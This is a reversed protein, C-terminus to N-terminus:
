DLRDTSDSEIPIWMTFTSGQSRESEVTVWGGHLHAVEQVIALGLGTGSIQQDRAYDGRYFREFIHPREEADIGVGTDIVSLTAWPRCEAVTTRLRVTVKGGPPTYLVANRVLRSLADRLWGVDVRATMPTDALDLHFSLGHAEAMHCFEDEHQLVLENLGWQRPQHRLASSEISNLQLIDEVLHTLQDAEAVLAEQYVQRRAESAGSLMDAYLKITSTPTRLEHSVDQIFRSKIRNVRKLATVDHISVVAATEDSQSDIEAVQVRLDWGNLTLTVDRHSEPQDALSRVTERLTDASEPTLKETLWQSAVPNQLTIRGEKDIVVLGDAASNLIARLRAREARLESTREAVEVELTENFNRLAMEAERRATIDLFIGMSGIYAGDESVNPVANLLLHRVDGDPRQITLEYRDTRGEARAETGQRVKAFEAADTFARVNMGALTGPPVGFIREAASNAFVFTEDTDAIAIGEGLNEVLRRYRMESARLADAARRQDTVDEGLALLGLEGDLLDPIVRVYWRIDHLMGEQAIIPLVQGQEVSDPDEFAGRLFARVADQVNAPVRERVWDTGRVAELEFGVVEEAFRNLRIIHGERDLVCIMMPAAALLSEAFDRERALAAEARERHRVVVHISETLILSAFGALTVTILSESIDSSVRWVLWVSVLIGLTLMTLTLRRSYVFAALVVPIILLTLLSSSLSGFIVLAVLSIMLLIYVGFAVLCAPLGLVPKRLQKLKDTL